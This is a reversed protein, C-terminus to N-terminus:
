KAILVQLILDTLFAHSHLVLPGLSPDWTWDGDTPPLKKSKILKLEM